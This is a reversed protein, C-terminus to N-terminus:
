HELIYLNTLIKLLSNFLMYGYPYKTLLADKLLPFIIRSIHSFNNKKEM